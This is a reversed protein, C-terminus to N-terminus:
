PEAEFCLSSETKHLSLSEESSRLELNYFLELNSFVVEASLLGPLLQFSPGEEERERNKKEYKIREEPISPWHSLEM